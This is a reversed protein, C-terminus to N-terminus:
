SHSTPRVSQREDFWFGLKHALLLNVIMFVVGALFCLIIIVWDFVNLLEVFAFWSYILCLASTVVAPIYHRLCLWQVIHVLLHFTFATFIAIWAYYWEFYFSVAVALLVIVFEEFVALAFGSSSLQSMQRIAKHAFPIKRELMSANRNLWSKLFIMEEFEHLMFIAPFILIYYLLSPM